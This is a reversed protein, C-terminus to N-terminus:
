YHPLQPRNLGSILFAAFHSSLHIYFPQCLEQAPPVQTTALAPAPATHLAVQRHRFESVLSMPPRKCDAVICCESKACTDALLLICHVLFHLRQIRIYFIVVQFIRNCGSHWPCLTFKYARSAETLLEKCTKNWCGVNCSQSFM